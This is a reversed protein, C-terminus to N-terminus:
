VGLLPFHELEALLERAELVCLVAHRHRVSRGRQFHRQAGHADLRQVLHQDRGVCEHRRRRRHQRQPRDRDEAVDPFVRHQDVGRIRLLLDTRTRLRDDRHVDRPLRRVHVGHPRQRLLVVQLHNFVRRLRVTRRPAPRLHPRQAVRAREAELRGLVHIGALTPHHQRVVALHRLARPRDGVHPADRLPRPVLVLQHPPVQPLRIAMFFPNPGADRTSLVEFTFDLYREDHAGWWSRVTRVEDVIADGYANVYTLDHQVEAYVPGSVVRRYGRHHMRGGPGYPPEDWDSWINSSGGESHGGYTLNLGTHHPHDGTGQGRVVSAGSPGLLPWVYPRRAGLVQYSAFPQGGVFFLSRDLKQVVQASQAPVASPDLRLRRTAGAELRGALIFSLAGSAADYQAPLGAGNEDRLLLAVPEQQRGVPGASWPAAGGVGEAPVAVSVLENERAVDEAHVTLQLGGAPGESNAM